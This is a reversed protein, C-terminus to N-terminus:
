VDLRIVDRDDAPQPPPPAMADLQQLTCREPDMAPLWRVFRAASRFRRGRLRAFRVECAMEPKVDIWGNV